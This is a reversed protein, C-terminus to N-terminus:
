QIGNGMRKAFYVYKEASPMMYRQSIKGVADIQDSHEPRKLQTKARKRENDWRARAREREGRKEANTTAAGVKKGMCEPIVTGPLWTSGENSVINSPLVTELLGIESSLPRQVDKEQISKSSISDRTLCLYLYTAHPYIHPIKM